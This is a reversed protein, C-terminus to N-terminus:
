QNVTFARPKMFYIKGDKGKAKICVFSVIAGKEAKAILHKARPNMRDQNHEEDITGDTHEVLVNFEIIAYGPKSPRIDVLDCGLCSSDPESGLLITVDCTPKCTETQALVGLPVFFSLLLFIHLLRSTM